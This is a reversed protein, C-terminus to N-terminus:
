YGRQEKQYQQKTRQFHRKTYTGVYGGGNVYVDVDGNYKDIAVLYASSTQERFSEILAKM